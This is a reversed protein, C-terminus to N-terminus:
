EKRVNEELNENKQDLKYNEKEKEKIIKSKSTIEKKSIELEIKLNKLANKLNLMELSRDEFSKLAAAEIKTIKQELIQITEKM